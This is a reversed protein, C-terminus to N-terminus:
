FWFLHSLKDKVGNSIISNTLEHFLHLMYKTFLERHLCEKWFFKSGEEFFIRIGYLEDIDTTSSFISLHMDRFCFINWKMEKRQSDGFKIFLLLNNKDTTRTSATTLGCKKSFWLTDGGVIEDSSHIIKFFFKWFFDNM